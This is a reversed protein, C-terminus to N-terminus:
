LSQRTLESAYERARKRLPRRRWSQLDLEQSVELDDHFNQELESVVSAHQMSINIEDNLLLSRSELNSSGVNAWIGDITIVKAHMKAQQYEFIRVGSELMREYSSHGAERALQKDQHPGGTLIRVDV